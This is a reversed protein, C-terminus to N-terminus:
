WQCRREVAHVLHLELLLLLLLLLDVVVAQRRRGGGVRVHARESWCCTWAGSSAHLLVVRDVCSHAHRCDGVLVSVTQRLLCTAKQSHDTTTPRRHTQWAIRQTQWTSECATCSCSAQWDVPWGSTDYIIDYRTTLM